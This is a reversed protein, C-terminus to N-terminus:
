RGSFWRDQMEFQVCTPCLGFPPCDETEEFHVTPWYQCRTRSHWVSGGIKRRYMKRDEPHPDEPYPDAPHHIGFLITMLWSLLKIVMGSIRSLLSILDRIQSRFHRGVRLKQGVTKEMSFWFLDSICSIDVRIFRFVSSSLSTFIEAKGQKRM